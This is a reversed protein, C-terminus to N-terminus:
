DFCIKLYKHNVSLRREQTYIAKMCRVTSGVLLFPIQGLLKPKELFATQEWQICQVVM